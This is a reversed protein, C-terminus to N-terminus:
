RKLVVNGAMVELGDQSTIKCTKVVIGKQIEQTTRFHIEVKRGVYSDPLDLNLLEYGEREPGYDMKVRTRFYGEAPLILGPNDEQTIKRKCDIELIIGEVDLKDTKVATFGVRGIVDGNGDLATIEM